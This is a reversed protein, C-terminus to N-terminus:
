FYDVKYQRGFVADTYFSQRLREGAQAISIIARCMRSHRFASREKGSRARVSILGVAVAANVLVRASAPNIEDCVRVRMGLRGIGASEVGCDGVPKM